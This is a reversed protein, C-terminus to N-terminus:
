VGKLLLRYFRSAGSMAPFDAPMEEKDVREFGRKEYFRHAAHFADSTDLYIATMDRQRAWDLLKDLLRDAIGLRPGRMDARVFMKRLSGRRGGFDIIAVTGVTEGGVRAVWIEGGRSRFFGSPNRLDAQGEYTANAGFEQQQIDLVLKVVADHDTDRYPAIEVVREKTM